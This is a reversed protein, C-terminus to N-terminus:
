RRSDEIWMGLTIDCHLNLVSYLGGVWTGNLELNSGALGANDQLTVTKTDDTGIVHLKQGDATCATVSPTATVSVAGPSGVVWAYNDFALGTLAVGGAATVAQPAGSGGNLSPTSTPAAQFSPDSSAGNSTLVFGSTGPTVQTVGSTGNGVLVDHAALSAQGSGGNVVPLVGSVAASQDLHVTGVAPVGGVGGQFVQYQVPAPTVGVASTGNGYVMGNTTLSVAGTGGSAVGLATGTALASLPIDSFTNSLGSMTKNTLTDTTARGVLTDTTAPLTLVNSPSGVTIATGDLVRSVAAYASTTFTLLATM